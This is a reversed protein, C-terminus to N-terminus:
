GRCSCRSISLSRPTDGDSPAAGPVLPREFAAVEEMVPLYWPAPASMSSAEWHIHKRVGAEPSQTVIRDFTEWSRELMRRVRQDYDIDVPKFSAAAKASTTNTTPRDTYLTVEFGSQQAVIATTLGIAGAGVIGATVKRQRKLALVL